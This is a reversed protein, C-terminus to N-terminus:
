RLDRAAFLRRRAACERAATIYPTPYFTGLTSNVRRPPPCPQVRLPRLLSGGLAGPRIAPSLPALSRFQISLVRFLSHALVHPVRTM